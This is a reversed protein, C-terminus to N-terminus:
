SYFISRGRKDRMDKEIWFFPIKKVDTTYYIMITRILDLSGFVFIQLGSLITEANETLKSDVYEVFDEWAKETAVLEEYVDQVSDFIFKPNMKLIPRPDNQNLDDKLSVTKM